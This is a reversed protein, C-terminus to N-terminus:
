FDFFLLFDVKFSFSDKLNGFLERGSESDNEKSLVLFCEKRENDVFELVEM